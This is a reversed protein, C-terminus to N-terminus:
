PSGGFRIRPDVLAVCIDSLINGFLTLLASIVLIGMVVPYDREILSEYGLLGFGDINFITEILFSGMLIVSINNGFHTALPILSNRLAHRFTAQKFSMGKAIATQVYQASLNDLLANKVMFTMVAFSGSIYAILPLTAHKIIDWAQDQWSLYDFEDSSFGGMPFFEFHFSFTYLLAIAVIYNPIAYGLFVVFSTVLDGTEGHKLAKYIGLPIAILYTIILTCVGYFISIPLREKITDWVPEYYRTSMGLDFHVLKELWELYSTLIPKDFGYYQKLQDLQGQSLTNGAISHQSSQQQNAMQYATMMREIPGGPVMRTLTFVVITIGIFTPIVLLLRRLIYGLM